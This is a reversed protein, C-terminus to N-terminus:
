VNFNLITNIEEIKLGERQMSWRAFNELSKISKTHSSLDLDILKVTKDINVSCSERLSLCEKRIAYVPISGNDEGRLKRQRDQVINISTKNQIVDKQIQKIIGRFLGVGVGVGFLGAGASILIQVFQVSNM